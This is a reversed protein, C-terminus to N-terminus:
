SQRVLKQIVAEAIYLGFLAPMYSVTGYYSKKFGTGDTFELSESVPLESSFVALFGKNIRFKRLRKRITRAMVCNYTKSIDTVKVKSADLKGGSGMSSILPINKSMAALILHLKPTISDICDVVVDFDSTVIHEAREPNMFENLRILKINPNIDELRNGVIEVKSKNLTSHLAPLQRNINTISVIDGDVITMRGVGARAIFEAAMAGVGGLGIVLVNAKQLRAVGEEKLLLRERSLWDTM